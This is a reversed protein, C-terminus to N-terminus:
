FLARALALDEVSVVRIGVINRVYPDTVDQADRWNKIKKEIM